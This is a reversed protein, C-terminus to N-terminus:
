RSVDTMKEQQRNWSCGNDAVYNSYADKLRNEENEQDVKEAEVNKETLM